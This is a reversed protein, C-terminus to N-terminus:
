DRAGSPEAAKVYESPLSHHWVESVGPQCSSPSSAASNIAKLIQQTGAGPQFILCPSTLSFLPCCASTSPIIHARLFSVFISETIPVCIHIDFHEHPTQFVSPTAVEPSPAPAQPQPCPALPSKLRIQINLPPHTQTNNTYNFILKPFVCTTGRWM